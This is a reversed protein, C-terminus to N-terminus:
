AKVGRRALEARIAKAEEKGLRVSLEALNLQVRLTSVPVDEAIRLMFEEKKGM